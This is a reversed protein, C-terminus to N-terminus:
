SLFSWTNVRQSIIAKCFIAYIAYLSGDDAALPLFPNHILSPFVMAEVTLEFRAASKIIDISM